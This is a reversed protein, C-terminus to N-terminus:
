GRDKVVIRVICIRGGHAAPLPVEEAQAVALVGGALAGVAGRVGAVPLSGALVADDGAGAARDDAHALREDEVAPSRGPSGLGLPDHVLEAGVHAARRDTMPEGAAGVLGVTPRRKEPYAMGSRRVKMCVVPESNQHSWRSLHTAHKRPWEMGSVM